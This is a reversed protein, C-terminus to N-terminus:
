NSKLEIEFIDCPKIRKENYHDIFNTKKKPIVTFRKTYKNKKLEMIEKFDKWGPITLIFTQSIKNESNYDLIKFIHSLMAKIFIVDFIPNCLIVETDFRNTSFFSGKSGLSTELDPFATYFIDFYKNFVSSFGESVNDKPSYGLNKYDNALGHTNLQLYNYRIHLAVIYDLKDPYINALNGIDKFYIDKYTIIGNNYTPKLDLQIDPLNINYYKEFEHNLLTLLDIPKYHHIDFFRFDEILQQETLTFNNIQSQINNLM